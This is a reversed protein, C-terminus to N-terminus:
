QKEADIWPAIAELTKAVAGRNREVVNLATEGAQQCKEPNNMFGLLANAIDSPAEQVECAGAEILQDGIVQFNFYSPGTIQPKGLSAPELLNHGGLKDGMLSGAMFTVTSTALLTMMEGMTDGLYVQTNDDIPQSQSRRSLSFGKQEALAAVDGFREPHRPVLVMLADPQEALLAQHAELLIEDEGPHTSAAVWVPRQKIEQKLAVVAESTNDFEPLDFKVSGSVSVRKSNVGLQVFRDADDQFQCLIHDINKSLLNFMPQVRQYGRMSKESLRANMVIIPIGAKKVSTLTNPWLETEMILMTQPKVRKLFGNVAFSFDIPMYRHEVGDGLKSAIAAGTTTTTTVLISADPYTKRLALIIPKAAIVEGVSVAHIWIPRQGVLAPTKGFHEVWRKGVRPKGDKARYLGLLLFPAAIFLLLTYLLRM